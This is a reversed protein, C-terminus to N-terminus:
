IHGTEPHTWDQFGQSVSSQEPNLVKHTTWVPLRMKDKTCLTTPSGRPSELGQLQSGVLLILFAAPICFRM